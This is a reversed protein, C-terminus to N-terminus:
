GGRAVSASILATMGPEGSGGRGSIVRPGSFFDSPLAACQTSVGRLGQVM